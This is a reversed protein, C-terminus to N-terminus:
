SRSVAECSGATHMLNGKVQFTLKGGISDPYFFIRHSGVDLDVYLRNKCALFYSLNLNDPRLRKSLQFSQM